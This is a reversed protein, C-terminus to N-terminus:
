TKESKDAIFTREPEWDLMIPTNGSPDAWGERNKVPCVAM